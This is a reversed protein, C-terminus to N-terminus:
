ADLVFGGEVDVDRVPNIAGITCMGRPLLVFVFHTGASSDRSRASWPRARMGDMAAAVIAEGPEVRTSGRSAIHNKMTAGGTSAVIKSGSQKFAGEGTARASMAM